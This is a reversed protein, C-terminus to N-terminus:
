IKEKLSQLNDQSNQLKKFVPPSNQSTLSKEYNEMQIPPKNQQPSQPMPMRQPPFQQRMMQQPPTGSVRDHMLTLGRAILKNQEFLNDLKGKVEITDKATAPEFDKQAIAKASIEFLDLLKSLQSSLDDFKVFLNVLVKQLAVFNEMLKGDITAPEKHVHKKALKKKSIHAISKHLIKKKTPIKKALRKTTKKAM